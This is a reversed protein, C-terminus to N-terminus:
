KNEPLPHMSIFIFMSCYPINGRETEPGALPISGRKGGNLQMISGCLVNEEQRERNYLTNKQVNGVITSNCVPQM